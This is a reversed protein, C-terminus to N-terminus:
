LESPAAGPRPPTGGGAAPPERRGRPGAVRVRGGDRGGAAIGAPAVTGGRAHAAGASRRVALSACVARGDGAVLRRGPPPVALVRHRLRPLAVGAPRGLPM